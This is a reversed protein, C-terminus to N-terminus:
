RQDPEPANSCESFDNFCNQDEELIEVKVEENEIVNDEGESNKIIKSYKNQIEKNNIESESSENYWDLSRDEAPILGGCKTPFPEAM